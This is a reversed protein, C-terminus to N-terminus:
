ESRSDLRAMAADYQARNPVDVGKGSKAGEQPPFKLDMMQQFETMTLNGADESSLKLHVRAASIYVGADFEPVFEGAKSQEAADPRAKGATGHQLLHRAMIIQEDVPMAGPIWALADGRVEHWGILPSPDDQLCLCILVYAAARAAIAPHDHLDGYLEVIQAPTGLAAVRGFSPWFTYEQGDEACARLLGHEILM